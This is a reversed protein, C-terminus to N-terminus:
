ADDPESDKPCTYHHKPAGNDGVFLQGPRIPDPCNSCDLALCDRYEDADGTAKACHKCTRLSTGAPTWGPAIPYGCDTHTGNDGITHAVRHGYVSLLRTTATM